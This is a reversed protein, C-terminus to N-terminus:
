NVWHRFYSVDMHWKDGSWSAVNTCLLGCQLVILSQVLEVDKEMLDYLSIRCAETLGSSLSRAEITSTAAAGQAIMLLLLLSSARANGGQMVENPKLSGEPICAYYTECRRVYAKLFHELVIPPPLIIFGRGEISAASRKRSSDIQHTELAKHLFAQTVALLKERAYSSFPEVQLSPGKYLAKIPQPQWDGKLWADESELTDELGELHIRATKPCAGPDMPSNCQFFSWRDQAAVVAEHEQVSSEGMSLTIVPSTYCSDPSTRDSQSGVESRHAVLPSGFARSSDSMQMASTDHPEFDSLNERNPLGNIPLLYDPMLAVSFDLPYEIGGMLLMDNDGDTDDEGGIEMDTFTQKAPSLPVNINGSSQEFASHLFNQSTYTNLPHNNSVLPQSPKFTRDAAPSASINNTSTPM